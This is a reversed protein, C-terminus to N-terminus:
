FLRCDSSKRGEQATVIPTKSTQHIKKPRRHLWKTICYIHLLVTFGDFQFKLYKQNPESIPVSYYADKIDVKSMFVGPKVLQIITGITEMKFKKYEVKENLKKLNLILRYGGDPKVRVFIPSVIEGQEPESSVTVKKQLLSELENKIFTTESQKLPYQFSQIPQLKLSVNIPMGWVTQLVEPDSTILKWKKFCSRISGTKSQKVKEELFQKLLDFDCVELINDM